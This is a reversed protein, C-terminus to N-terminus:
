AFDTACWLYIGIGLLIPIFGLAGLGGSDAAVGRGGSSLLLYPVLVSVTGPMIATFILTRLALM